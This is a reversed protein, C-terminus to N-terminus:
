GQTLFFSIQVYLTTSIVYLYHGTCVLFRIFRETSALNIVFLLIDYRFLKVYVGFMVENM